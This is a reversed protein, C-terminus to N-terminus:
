ALMANLSDQMTTVGLHGLQTQIVRLLHEFSTALREIPEAGHEALALLIKNQHRIRSRLNM